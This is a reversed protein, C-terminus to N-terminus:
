WCRPDPARALGFGHADDRGRPGLDEARSTLLRRAAAANGRTEARASLMAAMAYPVAFSTGTWETAGGGPAASVVDVGPAAIEVYGGRNAGRWARKRKDVASVAMVEPYAAPYAPRARPGDNGAAALLNARRSAARVGFALAANDAGALSLGVVRAGGAIAWDLSRLISVADAWPEGDRMGFAEAALLGAGPALPGAGVRGVLLAAIATGHDRPAPRLGDPLFSRQRVNAGRLAPHREDV